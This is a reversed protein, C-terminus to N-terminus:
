KKDRNKVAEKLMSKIMLLVRGKERETLHKVLILKDDYSKANDLFDPPVSLKKKKKFKKLENKLKDQEESM